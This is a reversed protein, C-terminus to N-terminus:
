SWEARFRASIRPFASPLLNLALDGPKFLRDHRSGSDTLKAPDDAAFTIIAFSRRLSAFAMTMNGDEAAVAKYRFQQDANFRGQRLTEPAGLMDFIEQPIRGQLMDVNSRILVSVAGGVPVPSRKLHYHFAFGLKAAFAQLHNLAIPGGLRLFAEEATGLRRALLKSKGRPAQMEQLLGPVRRHVQKLLDGFEGEVAPAGPEAYARSILAAVLEARRVGENCPKCSPFELGKPRARRDFLVRAPVHDAETAPTTGGCYICWPYDFVKRHRRRM